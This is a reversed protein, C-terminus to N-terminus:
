LQPTRFLLGIVRDRNRESLFDFRIHAVKGRQSTRVVEGTTEIPKEERYQFTLGVHDGTTFRQDPNEISCGGGGLDILMTDETEQERDLGRVSAPIMIRTRYFERRQLRRIHESHSVEIIHKGGKRVRTSFGFRGSPTQFYVQVQMGRTRFPNKKGLAISVSQPTVALIRGRSSASGKLAVLVPMDPYLEATSRFAQEPDRPKFGLKLRLAAIESETFLGDDALESAYTNFTAQNEVLLHKRSLDRQLEAMSELISIDTHGLGRERIRQEYRHLAREIKRERDRRLQRRNLIFVAAIIGILLLAFVAVDLPDRVLGQMGEIIARLKEEDLEVMGVKERASGQSIDFLKAGTQIVRTHVFRGRERQLM